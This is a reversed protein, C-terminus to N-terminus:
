SVRSSSKAKEEGQMPHSHRLDRRLRRILNTYVVKQVPWLGCKVQICSVFDLVLKVKLFTVILFMDFLRSAREFHFVGVEIHKLM